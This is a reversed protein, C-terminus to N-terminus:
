RIVKTTVKSGDAMENVVINVGDFPTASTQGALNYYRTSRVQKGAEIGDVGTAQDEEYTVVFSDFAVVKNGTTTLTLAQTDGNWNLNEWYKNGQQVYEESFEGSDFEVRGAYSPTLYRFAISKIKNGDPVEIVLSQNGVAATSQLYLYMDGEDDNWICVNSSPTVTVGEKVIPATLFLKSDSKPATLGMASVGSATTFDFTVDTAWASVTTLAVLALSLIKKMDNLHRNTMANAHARPFCDM